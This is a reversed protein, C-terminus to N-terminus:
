LCLTEQANQLRRERLEPSGTDVLGAAAQSSFFDITPPEDLLLAHLQLGEIKPYKANRSLQWDEERALTMRHKWPVWRWSGKSVTQDVLALLRNSPLSDSILIESPYHKQFKKKMELVVSQSLKPPFAENWGGEPHSSPITTSATNSVEGAPASSTSSTQSATFIQKCQAWVVKLAARELRSIDETIGLDRLTAEQDFESADSFGMAITSVSWGTTVIASFLNAPIGNNSCISELDDGDGSMRNIDSQNTSSCHNNM